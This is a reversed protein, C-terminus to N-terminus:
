LFAPDRQLGHPPPPPIPLPSMINECPTHWKITEIDVREPIKSSFTLGKESSKHRISTELICNQPATKSFLDEM